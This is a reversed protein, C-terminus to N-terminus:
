SHTPPTLPIKLVSRVRRRPRRPAAPRPAARRSRPHSPIRARILTGCGPESIVELVGGVMEVRERMGLLGLPRFRRVNLVRAVDFSIGDDAIELCIVRPTKRISIRVLSAKAHRAINSLASQAVRYLVTRRANSLREVESCSTFRVQVGTRRTFEKLLSHLTVTLGLDDLLPPRLERAFEHVLDVAKEVLTQTRLIRQRLQAPNICAESALTQLHVHIGVLTQSVDDHLERSIRKREEEQAELIRHSLFRLQDQMLRSHQLLESQHQESRRLAEQALQRRSIEENLERNASALAALRRQADEVRKLPTIDSIAVRCGPDAEEAPTGRTGHVNAWFTTGDPRLMSVEGVQTDSRTQSRDLLTAFEARSAPAVFRTLRERLLGGRPVGLLAAGTRNVETIQGRANLFFLAIPAFDYLDTYRKLSAETRDQAQRLEVNQLELEVQHVQLEHLLRRPSEEETAAAPRSEPRGPRRKARLVQEARRRLVATTPRATGASKM